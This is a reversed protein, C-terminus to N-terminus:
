AGLTWTLDQTATQGAVLPSATSPLSVTFVCTTTAGQGLGGLSGGVFASMPGAAITLTAGGTCVVGVQLSECLTDPSAPTGSLPSQFASVCTAAGLTFTSGDAGGSNTLTVTTSQTSGPAMDLVDVGNDGYKNITTCTFSNTASSTSACTTSAGASDPGTETLAVSQTTGARNGQNTVIASTWDGLTGTVGLTLLVASVAGALWVFPVFRHRRPGHAVASM